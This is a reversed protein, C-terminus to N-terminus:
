MAPEDVQGNQGAQQEAVTALEDLAPEMHSRWLGTWLPATSLLAPQSSWAAELEEYKKDYRDSTERCIAALSVLRTHPTDVANAHATESLVSTNSWRAHGNTGSGETWGQDVWNQLDPGLYAYELLSCDPGARGLERLAIYPRLARLTGSRQVALFALPLSELVRACGDHIMRAGKPCGSVPLLTDAFAEFEGDEPVWISWAGDVLKVNGLVRGVYWGRVLCRLLAQSVPVFSELPQARRFNWFSKKQNLSDRQFWDEAIPRLLSEIVLPSVPAGLASSIDVSRIGKDSTLITNIEADGIGARSLHSRLKAEIRHTALPLSSLQLRTSSWDSNPHVLGLLSQDIGVLPVAAEMAANLQNLFRSENIHREVEDMAYRDDEDSSGLFDRLTRSVFREFESGKHTLLRRARQRLADLGTHVVIRVSVPSRGNNAALPNWHRAVEFMQIDGDPAAITARLNPQFAGIVERRVAKRRADAGAIQRYDSELLQRFHEAYDDPDILSFDGEPPRAGEPPTEVDSWSPWSRVIESALTAQQHAHELSESLPRLIRAAVERALAAARSWWDSEMQYARGRAQQAALLGPAPQNGGDGALGDGGDQLRQKTGADLNPVAERDLYRAVQRCLEAAIVFGYEHVLEALTQLINDEINRLWVGMQAQVSADMGQKYAPEAGDVALTAAAAVAAPLGAVGAVGLQAANVFNAFNAAYAPPQLAAIIQNSAAFPGPQEFLLVPATSLPAPVPKDQNLGVKSRFSQLLQQAVFNAVFDKSKTGEAAGDLKTHGLNLHTVADRVLRQTAYREFHEGGVSLRSFGLASICPAGQEHSEGADVLIDGQEHARASAAWNGSTYAVFRSHVVMDVVWSLLSRGTVEFLRDPTGHDTHRGAIRGVLFPYTPGSREQPKPQGARRLVGSRKPAAIAPADTSSGQWWQGNLMECLAALSNAHVGGTVQKGLSEFVEPTYLLAFISDGAPTQMSRLMDCVLNMLGSGTGGALSGVIVIYMNAVGGSAHTADTEVEDYLERLAATSDPDNMRRIHERLRQRIRKAYALAITQGVARFQGAGHSLPVGLGAPEVRWSRLESLTEADGDLINQLSTFSMGPAMLGLYEDPALSETVSSDIDIDDPEIPTDIHLFQWGEPITKERGHEDLWRQMERKLFRLTKGGSGGLGVFLFKSYM